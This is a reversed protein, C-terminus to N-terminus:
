DYDGNMCENMWEVGSNNNIIMMHVEELCQYEHYLINIEKTDVKYSSTAVNLENYHVEIMCHKYDM